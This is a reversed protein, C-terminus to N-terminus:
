ILFLVQVKHNSKTKGTLALGKNLLAVHIAAIADKILQALTGDVKVYAVDGQIYIKEEAFFEVSSNVPKCPLSFSRHERFKSKFRKVNEEIIYTEKIEPINVITDSTLLKNEFPYYLPHDRSKIRDFSLLMLEQHRTMWEESKDETQESLMSLPSSEISTLSTVDIARIREVNVDERSYENIADESHFDRIEVNVNGFPKSVLVALQEYNSILFTVSKVARDSQVPCMDDQGNFSRLINPGFVIALNKADMLTENKKKSIGNLLSLLYDLQVLYIKPLLLLLTRYTEM